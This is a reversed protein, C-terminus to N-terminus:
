FSGPICTSAGIVNPLMKIAYGSAGSSTTTSDSYYTCTLSNTGTMSVAKCNNTNGCNTLCTNISPPDLTNSSPTLQFTGSSSGTFAVGSLLRGAGQQCTYGSIINGNKEPPINTTFSSTYNFDNTAYYGGTGKGKIVCVYSPTDLDTAGYYPYNPYKVLVNSISGSIAGPTNCALINCSNIDMTTMVYANLNLLTNSQDWLTKGVLPATMGNLCATVASPAVGQALVGGTKDAASPNTGQGGNACISADVPCVFGRSSSSVSVGGNNNNGGTSTTPNNTIPPNNGGLVNTSSSSSPNLVGAGAISIIVIMIVFIVMFVAVLKHHTEVYQKTEEWKQQFWSEGQENEEEHEQHRSRRSVSRDKSRATTYSTSTVPPPHRVTSVPKRGKQSHSM